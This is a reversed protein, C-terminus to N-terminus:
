LMKNKVNKPTIIEINHKKINYNKKGNKTIMQKEKERFPSVSTTQPFYIQISFM